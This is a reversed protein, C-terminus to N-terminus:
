ALRMVRFAEAYAMDHDTGAHAARDRVLGAMTEADAGLQSSHCGLAAVKVEITSTIDVWTDPELTGSLFVSEVQHPPGASPFYHPRAAEPACSDLVAFGVARHDSHNVYSNGFLVATPDSTMVVSPRLLRIREVIRGRSEGDNAFEGDPYGLNAHSSAGVLACAEATEIRRRAALEAPDMDPDSTGKEGLTCILVHVESGERAWRALTGASAVEPDDPHAYVALM